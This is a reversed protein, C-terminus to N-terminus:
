EGKSGSRKSAFVGKKKPRKSVIVASFDITLKKKGITLNLPGHHALNSKQDFIVASQLRGDHVGILLNFERPLVRRGKHHGVYPKLNWTIERVKEKRSM